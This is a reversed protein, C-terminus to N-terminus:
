DAFLETLFKMNDYKRYIQKLPLLYKIAQYVSSHKILL